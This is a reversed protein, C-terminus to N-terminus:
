ILRLTNFWVIVFQGGPAASQSTHRIVSEDPLAWPNAISLKLKEALTGIGTASGELPASSKEYLTTGNYVLRVKTYGAPADFLGGFLAYFVADVYLLLVAIQLTQALSPNLWRRTEM